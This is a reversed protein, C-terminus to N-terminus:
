HVHGREDPPQFPLFLHQKKSSLINWHQFIVSNILLFTDDYLDCDDNQSFLDDNNDNGDYLDLDNLIMIKVLVMYGMNALDDNDYSILM